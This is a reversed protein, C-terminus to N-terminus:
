ESASRQRAAGACTHVASVQVAGATSQLHPTRTAQVTGCVTGAWYRREPCTHGIPLCVDALATPACVTGTDKPLALALTGQRVM